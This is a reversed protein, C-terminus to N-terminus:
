KDAVGTEAAQEVTSAKAGAQKAVEAELTKVKDRLQKAEAKAKDEHKKQMAATRASPLLPTAPAGGGTGGNGPAWKGGNKGHGDGWLVCRTSPPRNCVTCEMKHPNNWKGKDSASAFRVEKSCRMCKWSQRGHNRVHEAFGDTGVVTRKGRPMSM